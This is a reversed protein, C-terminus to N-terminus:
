LSKRLTVGYTRPAGLFGNIAGTQLAPGFSAQTYVEDTLNHGWLEVSWSKGLSGLGLRADVLTYPKQETLPNPTTSTNYRSSYKAGLNFRGLLSSGINWEYGFGASVTWKPAFGATSGPLTALSADALRDDGYKAKTYGVGGQLSLGAVDTQWQLDLDVGKTTLEPISAVVWSIGSFTNLQYDSYKSHFLAANLLLNGGAWSTKTGLEYSDVKEAPFQTNTVPLIGSGGSTSGNSSQVRALNFGGAKDGRAASAYPMVRESWRYAAKLTGSWHNESFSDSSTLGNFLPNQWPLCMNGIVTPAILPVAGAPVGRAILADAVSNTSIAAGCATGGNPNSYSFNSTKTEHTYRLGGTLALADTAHFTVNGFLASSKSSQRWEDRQATGAYASGPAVGGAAESLFNQPNTMDVMGPPLAAAIGSLLLTSLYGEYQPQLAIAENRRLRVKDFYLGSVWDVKGSKGALRLEQSFTNFHQGNDPSFDHTALKAGSFDLDSASQLSWKRAASISTLTAGGFWPTKWNVQASLGEDVIKQETSDNAYALRSSPDAAPVVGKGAGGAFADVLGAIGPDRHLTTSICCNENRRTYDGIFLVDLDDNPLLLLQGRLSQLNQDGDKTETRPGNNVNVDNFGDRRRDVAYIRFASTDNIANTYGAGVGTARYNGFTLEGEGQEAFSPRRTTISIVGSSTNKGFVTGQPGKLVEIQSIEGLDGFSVGNRPRPVGDIVIGVSSELGANDGTTGIGRIRVTTNAESDTSTVGLNPVLRQLDKINQVGADQLRQRNLTSMTVPVDQLFEVRKQANVTVKDLTTAAKDASDRKPVAEKTAPLPAPAPAEPASAAPPPSTPAEQSHALGPAAAFGLAILGALTNLRHAREAM